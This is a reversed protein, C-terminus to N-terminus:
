EFVFPSNTRREPTMLSRLPSRDLTSRGPSAFVDLSDYSDPSRLPLVQAVESACDQCLRIIADKHLAHFAASRTVSGWNSKLEELVKALFVTENSSSLDEWLRLLVDVLVGPGYMKFLVALVQARLEMLGYMNALVLLGGYHQLGFDGVYAVDFDVLDTYLFYVLARVLTQSEPIFMKCHTHERMGSLVVRQFHPWRAILIAKHVRLCKLHVDSLNNNSLSGVHLTSTHGYFDQSEKDNRTEKVNQTEKNDPIEKNDQVEKNDLTEKNDQTEKNTEEKPQEENEITIMYKGSDGVKAKDEVWTWFEESFDKANEFEDYCYIEFDTHQEAKLFRAFEEVIGCQSNVSVGLEVVPVSLVVSLDDGRLGLLQLEGGSMFVQKWILDTHLVVAAFEETSLLSQHRCMNSLDISSLGLPLLSVELILDSSHGHSLNLYTNSRPLTTESINSVMGIAGTLLELYYYTDNIHIMDKDLGGFAYIRDGYVAICHDFRSVFKIPGSWTGTHLDYCYLDDVPTSKTLGGSIYVKTGDPSLCSAHRTRSAPANELAFPPAPTWKRTYISYILMVLEKATPAARSTPVNDYPLGGFILVNGNGIYVALHGEREISHSDDFEWQNTRLNFLYVTTDLVDQDDFGGFLFVYPTDICNVIAARDNSSPTPGSIESISVM